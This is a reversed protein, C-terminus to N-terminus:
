VPVINLLKHKVAQNVFNQFYEQNCSLSRIDGILIHTEMCNVVGSIHIPNYHYKDMIVNHKNDISGFCELPSDLKFSSPLAIIKAEEISSHTQLLKLLDLLKQRIENEM